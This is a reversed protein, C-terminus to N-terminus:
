RQITQAGTLTFTKMVGCPLKQFLLVFNNKFYEANGTSTVNFQLKEVYFGALKAVDRCNLISFM